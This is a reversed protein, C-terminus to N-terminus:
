ATAEDQSAQGDSELAGRADDSCLCRRRALRYGLPGPDITGLARLAEQPMSARGYRLQVESHVAHNARQGADPRKQWHM